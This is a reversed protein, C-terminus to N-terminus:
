LNKRAFTECGMKPASKKLAFETLISKSLPRTHKGEMEGGVKIGVSRGEGEIDEREEEEEREGSIALTRQRKEEM